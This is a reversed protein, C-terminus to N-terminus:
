ETDQTNNNEIKDKNKIIPTDDLFWNFFKGFLYCFIPWAIASIAFVVIMVIFGLVLNDGVIGAMCFWLILFIPLGFTVVTLFVGM